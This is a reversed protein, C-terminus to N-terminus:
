EGEKQDCAPKGEEEVQVKKTGKRMVRRAKTCKVLDWCCHGDNAVRAPSTMDISTSHPTLLIVYGSLTLLLQHLSSNTCMSRDSSESLESPEKTNGSM